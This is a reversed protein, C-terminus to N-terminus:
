LESVQEASLAVDYIVIERVSGSAAEDNTETDDVFFTAVTGTLAAVRTADDFEFDMAPTTPPEPAGARTALSRVGDRYVVTHGAGDRVLTVRTTANPTFSAPATLFDAGPVIVYQLAGEYTYFGTDKTLGEFDLIKRWSALDAFAFTIDVTYVDPPLAGDISLGQNAAFVYGRVSDFTGGRGVADPGGFDDTFDRMAYRHIPQLSPADDTPDSDFGIRGCATVMLIWLQRM